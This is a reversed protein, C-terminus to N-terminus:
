KLKYDGGTLAWTLDCIENTTLDCVDFEGEDEECVINEMSGFSLRTIASDELTIEIHRKGEGNLIQSIVESLGNVALDHTRKINEKITNLVERQADSLKNTAM